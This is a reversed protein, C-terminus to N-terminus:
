LQFFHNIFQAMKGNGYFYHQFLQGLFSLYLLLFFMSLWSKIPMALVFVNLQPAFRSVMGLGFEALFLVILVPACLCFTVEMLEDAFVLFFQSLDSEITITLQFVPWIEYTKYVLTLFFLFGNTIFFFVTLTQLLFSGLLSTQTGAIVDFTTAMSAGRQVDIIFGVGEAIFFIFTGVFGLILGITVEKFLIAFLTLLQLEGKPLTPYLFYFLPLAMGLIIVNRGMGVIFQKSFVPIIALAAALRAISVLLLFCIRALEGLVSSDM